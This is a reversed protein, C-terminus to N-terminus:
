KEIELNANESSTCSPTPILPVATSLDREKESQVSDLSKDVYDLADSHRSSDRFVPTIYHSISNCISVIRSIISARASSFTLYRLFNVM